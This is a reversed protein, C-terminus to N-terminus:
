ILKHCLLVIHIHSNYPDLTGIHGICWHTSMFYRHSRLTGLVQTVSVSLTLSLSLFPELKLARSKLANKNSLSLVLRIHNLYHSPFFKKESTSCLKNSVLRDCYKPLYITFSLTISTSYYTSILLCLLLTLGPRTTLPPSEYDSPQSNLDWNWISSLWKKVNIQQSIQMTLKFFVSFLRFLPRPHGNNRLVQM